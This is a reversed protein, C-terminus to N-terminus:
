AARSRRARQRHRRRRRRGAADASSGLPAAVLGSPTTSRSCRRPRSRRRRAVVTATRPTSSGPVTVTIASAGEVVHANTLISGDTDLVIGTGAAPRPAAPTGPVEAPAPSSPRSRCWPRSSGPSCRVSTSVTAPWISAPGSSRSRGLRDRGAPGVVGAVRRGLRRAHRHRGRWGGPRCPRAGPSPAPWRGDCRGAAAGVTPLASARLPRHPTRHSPAGHGRDLREPGRPGPSCGPLESLVRDHSFPGPTTRFIDDARAVVEASRAKIRGAAALVSPAVGGLYIAGLDDIELALDPEADTRACTASKPDVDVLFRGGTSPRFPDHVDLSSSAPSRTAAVKSRGRPRRAGAAVALGQGREDPGAASRGAAVQDPRRGSAQLGGGDLGPRRRAAPAM